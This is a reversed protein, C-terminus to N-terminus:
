KIPNIIAQLKGILLPFRDKRSFPNMHGMIAEEMEPMLLTAFESQLQTLVHDPASLIVDVLNIRNDLVYIIDELDHSTRPDKGRNHSAEFKSALFYALPLIHISTHEDLSITELHEFGKRFWSNAPAWGIEKTSMVDVLIGKYVFRCVVNEEPDPYFGKTALLQRIKELRGLTVIEFAIDIDKTPRLEDAAPDDVYLGVIAGGVFASKENLEGLASAVEIISEIDINRRM